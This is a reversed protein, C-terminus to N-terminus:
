VLFSLALLVWSGALGLAQLPHPQPGVRDGYFAPSGSVLLPLPVSCLCGSGVTVEQKGVCRWLRKRNWARGPLAWSPIPTPPDKSSLCPRHVERRGSEEFKSTGSLLIERSDQSVETCM